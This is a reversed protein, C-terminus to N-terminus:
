GTTLPENVQYGTFIFPNGAPQTAPAYRVGSFMVAVGTLEEGVAVITEVAVCVAVADAEFGHDGPIITRVRAFTFKRVPGPVM